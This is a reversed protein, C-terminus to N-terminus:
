LSALDIVARLGIVNADRRSFHPDFVFQVDADVPDGGDWLYEDREHGSEM